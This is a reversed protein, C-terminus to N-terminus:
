KKETMLKVIEINGGECAIRLGRNWDTVGHKIILKVIEINGGRCSEHFLSHIILSRLNINNLRLTYIEDLIESCREYYGLKFLEKDSTHKFAFEIILKVLDQCVYGLLISNM